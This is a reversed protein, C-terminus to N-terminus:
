NPLEHYHLEKTLDLIPLLDPLPDAAVALYAVEGGFSLRFLRCPIDTDIDKELLGHGLRKALAEKKTWLRFFADPTSGLRAFSARENETFFRNAIAFVDSHPRLFELDVGVPIHPVDGLLAVALSHSHSLSFPLSPSADFYPKGSPSRLIPAAPLAHAGLLAVLAQRAALGQKLSPLHGLALLRETEAAGFPLARALRHLEHLNEPLTDVSTISLYLSM